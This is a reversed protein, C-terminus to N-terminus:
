GGALGSVPTSTCVLTRSFLLRKVPSETADPWAVIVLTIAVVSFLHRRMASM